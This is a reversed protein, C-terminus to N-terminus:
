RHETVAVHVEVLVAGLGAGGAPGADLGAEAVEGDSDQPQGTVGADGGGEAVVAAARVGAFSWSSSSSTVPGQDAGVLHFFSLAWQRRHPLVSARM